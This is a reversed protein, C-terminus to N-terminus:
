FPISDDPMDDATVAKKTARKAAVKPAPTSPAGQKVVRKVYDRIVNKPPFAPDKEDIDVKCQGAAGIVTEALMEGSEYETLMDISEAFHRIKYAMSDIQGVLYDTITKSQEDNYVKLTLVMMDNGAKSSTDKANTVEFFYVGKPLLNLVETETKPDFRM